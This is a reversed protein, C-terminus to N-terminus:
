WLDKKLIAGEYHNLTMYGVLITKHVNKNGNYTYNYASLARPTTAITNIPQVWNDSTRPVGNAIILENYASSNLPTNEVPVTMVEWDGTFFDFDDTGHGSPVGSAFIVPWATRVTFKTEPFAGHYYSIYPVYRTGTGSPHTAPHTEQRVNIMIKLGASLFTDVRFTQIGTVKNTTIDTTGIVPIGSSPIYAYWLGGNNDYYALHINNGGDVAMDVFPGANVQVETARGQWVNTATVNNALNINTAVNGYSILLKESVEDYWAIVPVNNSLSASATYMSGKYNTSSTAVAQPRAAYTRSTEWNYNGPNDAWATPHSYHNGTNSNNAGDASPAPALDGGFLPQGATGSATGYHLYISNSQLSDGYSVTIRSNNATTYRSHIKAMRIRNSDSGENDSLRNGLIRTKYLGPYINGYSNTAVTATQGTLYGTAGRSHLNYATRGTSTQNNAGVYWHETNGTPVGSDAAISVFAYRNLTTELVTGRVDISTTTSSDHLVVAGPNVLYNAHALLRKGSESVRFTPSELTIRTDGTTKNLLSGVSWVYMNRDDNLINNNINNPEDNYGTGVESNIRGAANNNRNNLSDIGNVRVLLAGSLIQSDDTLTANNDLRAVVHTKLTSAPNSATGTSVFMDDGSAATAIASTVLSTGGVSIGTSPGNLNFGKVGIKEATTKSDRVPYWGTASRNFASTASKYALSLPTVVERIYPVVDFRYHETKAALTTQLGATWTGPNSPNSNNISGGDRAVVTLINNLSAVNTIYSSDFDLRWNVTHGDMNLTESEIVFNWGTTNFGNTLTGASSVWTGGTYQAARYYTISNIAVSNNAQTHNTIRFNIDGIVNNDFSTGRFSVQGSVKPDRDDVGTGATTFSSPLDAELEIHGNNRSNNYLSNRAASEWYFPNISISPRKQDENDIDLAIAFAHSLQNAETGGVVTSDYVKILFYKQNKNAALIDGATKTSDTINAFNNFVINDVYDPTGAPFTNTIETGLTYSYVRGSVSADPRDTAVFTTGVNGDLAGYQRWDVNGQLMITYVNGAVMASPHIETRATVYSVRYRKQGNGFLTNLVVNFGYNRIRFNPTLVGTNATLDTSIDGGITVTLPTALRDSNEIAVAGGGWTTTKATTDITGRRRMDTGLNIDRVLPRNNGVYIGKSYHTSNGAEDMVIYHVNLPGDIFYNTDLRAQWDKDAIGNWMEAYTGDRDDDMEAGLEQKDIVMAHPSEWVSGQNSGKARIAYAPFPFNTVNPQVTNANTDRNIISTRTTTMAPLTAWESSHASGNGTSYFVDTRGFASFTNGDMYGIPIGRPNFYVTTNAPLSNTITVTDFRNAGSNWVKYSPNGTIQRSFYVLMRALGQVSISEDYDKAIGSVYFNQTSANYHTSVATSPYFNDVSITYLANAKYAGAPGANNDEVQITLNYSGTRGYQLGPLATSNVEFELAYSFRQTNWNASNSNAPDAVRTGVNAKLVKAGSGSIASGNYQIMSGVSYEKSSGTADIASWNVGSGLAVIYYRWGSEFTSTTWSSTGQELLPPPTVKWGLGNLTSENTVQGNVVMNTLATTGTQTATILSIGGEDEVNTTITFRESSRIGEFYVQDEMNVKKIVPASITPVSSDFIVPRSVPRSILNNATLYDTSDLARVEILVDRLQGAPPSLKNDGNVTYYWSVYESPVGQLKAKVWGENNVSYAWEDAENKYYYKGNIYTFSGADGLPVASIRIEVSHVHINDTATGTIRLEGGVQKGDNEPVAITVKPRDAEPDVKLKYHMVNINGARDVIKVYIPWYFAREYDGTSTIGDINEEKLTSNEHLNMNAEYSWNYLGGSWGEAFESQSRDLKTDLWEKTDGLWNAPTNYLTNRDADNDGDRINDSMKGFRYFIKDIGNNDEATGGVKTNSTFWDGTSITISYKGNDSLNGSPLTGGTVNIGGITPTTFRAVPATKDLTFNTAVMNSQGSGGTVNIMVPYSKEITLDSNLIEIEFLARTKRETTPSINTDITINDPFGPAHSEGMFKYKETGDLSVSLIAVSANWIEGKIIFGKNTFSPVASTIEIQPIGREMYFAMNNQFGHGFDGSVDTNGYGNNLRDKVRMSLRYYGDEFQFGYKGLNADNTSLPITWGVSTSNEPTVSEWLWPSQTITNDANLKDIKYYYGYQSSHDPNQNFVYSYEDIFNGMLRANIDKIATATLQGRKASLSADGTQILAFESDSLYIPTNTTNFTIAPGASDIIINHSSMASKGSTGAANIFISKTGNAASFASAPLTFSFPFGKKGSDYTLSADSPTSGAYKIDSGLVSIEIGDFIFEIRNVDYVDKVVGTITLNSSGSYINNVANGVLAINDFIPPRADVMFVINSETTQNNKDDSVRISLVNLGDKYGSDAAAWPIDVFANRGNNTINATPIAESKWSKENLKYTLSSASISSFDDFFTLTLKTNLDTMRESFIAYRNNDSWINPNEGTSLGTNIDAVDRGIDAFLATELIKERGRIEVVPGATDVTFRYPVSSILDSSGTLSVQINQEGHTLKPTGALSQLIKENITFTKPGTQTFSLTENSGNTLILNVNGIAYTGTVTGKFAIQESANFVQNLLQNGSLDTIKLEPAHRDVMFAMDAEYGYNIGDIPAIATTGDSGFGHRDKVAISLRYIGDPMTSPLAIEWPVSKADTLTTTMTLAKWTTNASVANWASDGTIRYHFTYNGSAAPIATYDDSFRGTLKASASSDKVRTDYVSSRYSNWGAASINTTNLTNYLANNVYVKQGGTTNFSIEPGRDDLITSTTKMDSQGSSGTANLVITNPGYVFSSDGDMRVWYNFPFSRKQPITGVDPFKNGVQDKKNQGVLVEFGSVHFTDSVTGEVYFGKLGSNDGTGEGQAIATIDLVPPTRDLMFTMNNQYGKGSDDAIGMDVPTNGNIGDGNGLRDKVRISLRYLGDSYSSDDLNIQWNAFNNNPAEAQQWKWTGPALIDNNIRDIKYWYGYSNSEISNQAFINSHEDTFTGSLRAGTDTIRSAYILRYQNQQDTGPMSGSKYAYNHISEIDNKNRVYIPTSGTTSFTVSPGEKDVVINYSVMTSKGSSGIANIIISQTGHDFASTSVEFDFPFGGNGANFNLNSGVDTGKSVIEQANVILGLRSVDFVDRVVGNIHITHSGSFVENVKIGTVTSAGGATFFNPVKTDVMFVINQNYETSPTDNSKTDSIRVNLTNLGDRYSASSWPIDVSATKSNSPASLALATWTGSNIRYQLSDLKIPSLDDTFNLTLKEATDKLRVNYVSALNGTWGRPNAVGSNLNTNITAVNQNGQDGIQTEIIKDKGSISIVPANRDLNFGLANNKSQDSSGTANVYINHLGHLPHTGQLGQVLDGENPITYTFIFNRFGAFSSPSVQKPSSNINVSLGQVEYTNTVTVTVVKNTMESPNFVDYEDNNGGAISISVDPISRDVMFAMNESANDNGARDEVEVMLYYIGDPMDQSLMIDWGATTSDETAASSHGTGLKYTSGDAKSIYYSFEFSGGTGEKPIPTYEDTFRGSLKAFTSRDKIRNQYVIKLNDSTWEDANKTNTITKEDNTLEVKEGGTTNFTIDPGKNDLTINGTAMASQGSSGTVNFLITNPGYKFDDDIYHQRNNGETRVWYEFGYEKDKIVSVSGIKAKSNGGVLIQFDTNFEDQIGNAPESRDLIYTNKVTGKVTFGQRNTGGINREELKVSTIDLVPPARDLMFALNAENTQNGHIDKVIISLFHTGDELDNPLEIEWTVLSKNYNDNQIFHNILSGNNIRYEFKSNNLNFISSYRDNFNGIIKAKIDKIRNNQLQGYEYAPIDNVDVVGDSNRDSAAYKIGPIIFNVEPGTMDKYITITRTDYQLAKDEFTIEFSHSGDQLEDIFGGIPIRFRLEGAWGAGKARWVAIQDDAPLQSNYPLILNDMDPLVSIVEGNEIEDKEKPYKIIETGNIKVIISRLNQEIIDGYAFELDNRYSAEKVPSGFPNDDTRATTKGDPIALAAGAVDHTSPIIKPKTLDLRFPRFDTDGWSEGDSEYVKTTVDDKARIQIYKVVNESGLSAKHDEFQCSTTHPHNMIFCAIRLLNLNDVSISLHDESPVGPLNYWGDEPGYSNKKTENEAYRIQIADQALGNDDLVSFRIHFLEDMFTYGHPSGAANINGFTLRPKDTNQDVKLLIKQFNLNGAGDMATIYLWLNYSAADNYLHTRLTITYAGGDESVSVNPESGATIVPNKGDDLYKANGNKYIYNLIYKERNFEGNDDKNYDDNLVSGSAPTDNNALLMYKFKAFGTIDDYASGFTDTASVEIQITKNVTFVRYEEKEGSPFETFNSVEQRYAPSVRTIDTRPPNRDIYIAKTEFHQSFGNGRAYVNINYSGDVLTVSANWNPPLEHGSELKVAEDNDDTTYYTAGVEVTFTRHVDNGIYDGTYRKLILPGNMYQNDRKLPLKKGTKDIAGTIEFCLEVIDTDLDGQVCASAQINFDNNHYSGNEPEIIDIKPPIGFAVLDILMFDDGSFNENKGDKHLYRPWEISTGDIDEAYVKLKYRGPELGTEDALPKKFDEDEHTKGNANRTRLNYRISGSRVGAESKVFDDARVWGGGIEKSTSISPPPNTVSEWGANEYFNEPEPNNANWFKILPFGYAVGVLDKYVGMLYNDTVVSPPYENNISDDENIRTKPIQMEIEPPKNKITYILKPTETKKGDDDFAIIELSFDGDEMANTDIDFVYFKGEDDLYIRTKPSTVEQIIGNEKIFYTYIVEVSKIGSDDKAGIYFTQVGKLRSGPPNEDVNITPYTLDVQGGLSVSDLRCTTLGISVATVALLVIFRSFVASKM